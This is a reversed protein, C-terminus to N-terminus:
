LSLRVILQLDIEETTKISEGILAAAKKGIKEPQNSLVTIGGALIEKYGQDHYSIIGIDKGLKWNKADAYKIAQILDTDDLTFYLEGENLEEGELGDLVKFDMQISECFDGCGNIFEADFYEEETLVLNLCRYKKFLNTHNSFEQIIQSKPHCVISAHTNQISKFEHDLLILRDGAIKKLCKINEEEEEILHPMIVYYHYNGLQQGLIEQFQRTKYQYTFIDVMVNKGVAENFSNFIAKNTDTIKGVLFMVKTKLKHSSNSIFYGKRFISTIAGMKHLETYAREVTDRSLYCEESAENISPLREGPKLEGMEIDQLLSNILQQYKPLKNDFNKGSFSVFSKNM